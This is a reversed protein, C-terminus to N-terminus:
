DYFANPSRRLGYLTKRLKWIPPEGNVDPLLNKPLQMYVPEDIDATIFAGYIDLGRMKFGHQAALSFMLNITKNNITPSFLDRSVDVKELNGLVVLRAKRKGTRKTKLDM